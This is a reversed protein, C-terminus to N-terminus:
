GPETWGTCLGVGEGPVSSCLGTKVDLELVLGAGTGWHALPVSYLAINKVALRDGNPATTPGERARDSGASHRGCGPYLSQVLHVWASLPAPGILTPKKERFTSYIPDATWSAAVRLGM